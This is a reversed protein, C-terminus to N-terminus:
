LDAVPLPQDLALCERRFAEVARLVRIMLGAALVDHAFDALQWPCIHDACSM